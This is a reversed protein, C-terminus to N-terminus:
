VVTARWYERRPARGEPRGAPFGRGAGATDAHADRGAGSATRGGLDDLAEGQGAGVAGDSVDRHTADDAMVVPHGRVPEGRGDAAESPAGGRDAERRGRERSPDPRRGCVKGRQM